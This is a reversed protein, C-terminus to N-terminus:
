LPREDLDNIIYQFEARIQGPLDEESLPRDHWPLLRQELRQSVRVAAYARHDPNSSMERLEGTAIWDGIAAYLAAKDM